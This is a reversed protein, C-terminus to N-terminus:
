KDIVKSNLWEARLKEEEPTIKMSFKEKPILVIQSDEKLKFSGKKLKGLHSFSVDIEDDIKRTGIIFNLEPYSTVAQDDISLILDGKNVGAEYLASGILPTSIVIATDGEYKFRVFGISPKGPNKKILKYGFTDFLTEFDPLKNGNIYTEFFQSAFDNNGCVEILTNLLDLNTYPIEEKGYKVWVAKMFDDLSLNKFEARLSLDLALAIMEGYYYYSVFTNTFNDDDISSSRDTFAAMESMYVPSGYKWGPANVFLNLKGSLGNLYQDQTSIGSRCLALDGYYNTFGEGFWLEGSVNARTFDFPELSAPRIREINWVHFFEHSVADILRNQNETLPMDDSIMTSNRHEMGDGYYGEGFSCLFTYTSDSFDPFEGFVEMEESVVKKTMNVFKVFEEEPSDAKIAMLFRPSQDIHTTFEKLTFNGLICPSDMLYHLDPAFYVHKTSDLLHLQTAIKWTTTDPLEFIVKVPLHEMHKIWLLSAPMNLNAFDEDIGSYTGDAHNAFLTYNIRVSTNINAIKWEEPAVRKIEYSAESEGKANLSYINKAFNHVAYRGPSAKSMIATVESAKLNDLKLTIDAEHHVANPFRIIYSITDQAHVSQLLILSLFGTFIVKKM